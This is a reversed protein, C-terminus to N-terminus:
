PGLTHTEGGAITGVAGWVGWPSAGGYKQAPYQGCDTSFKWFGIKQCYFDVLIL